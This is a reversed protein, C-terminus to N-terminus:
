YILIHGSNLASTDLRFPTGGIDYATELALQVTHIKGNESVSHTVGYVYFTESSLGTQDESLEVQDGIAVDRAIAMQAANRNAFILVGRVDHHPDKYADLLHDALMQAEIPLNMLPANITLKRRGYASVSTADTATVSVPEKARIAYGRVQCRSLYLPYAQDNTFTLEIHDGYITSSIAVTGVEIDTGSEDVTTDFDTGEVPEVVDKGGVRQSNNSPDRFYITLNLEGDDVGDNAPIVLTSDQKIRGLIERFEGVTRPYCRVEIHNFIQTASMQYTMASMTNDITHDAGGTDLAAHHRNHFTPSGDKDIFFKGWDSTCAQLIKDSARTQEVSFVGQSTAMRLETPDWRDSSIAFVNLGDEYNTSPPTYVANVVATIIANSNTQTLLTIPGEYINFLTMADVCNVIVRRTGLLGMSPVVNEIYGLFLVEPTGDYTMTMRIKRMPRVNAELPPSYSQSSNRLVFTARTPPAVRSQPTPFGGMINFSILDSSVDTEYSGNDDWDIELTYTAYVSM